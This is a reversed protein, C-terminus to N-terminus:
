RCMWCKLKLSLLGGCSVRAPGYANVTAPGTKDTFGQIEIQYREFGSLGNAFDDLQSKADKTLNAQGVSFLVTM